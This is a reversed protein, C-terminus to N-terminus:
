PYIRCIGMMELNQKQENQFNNNCLFPSNMSCQVLCDVGLELHDYLLMGFGFPSNLQM